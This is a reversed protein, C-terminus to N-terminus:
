STEGELDSLLQTCQKLLAPLNIQIVGWVLQDNIIAYEHNLKNRFSIIQPAEHIQSFLDVDRQSLQNLAEGIITFEREVSSRILRSNSYGDLNIDAVAQQIAHGAEIVDSLFARPDRKM